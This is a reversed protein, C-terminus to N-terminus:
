GALALVLAAGAEVKPLDKNESDHAVGAVTIIVFEFVQGGVVGEDALKEIEGGDGATIQGVGGVKGVLGDAVIDAVDGIFEQVVDVLDHRLV